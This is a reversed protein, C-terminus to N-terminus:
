FSWNIGTTIYVGSSLDLDVERTGGDFQADGLFRYQVGLYLDLPVEFEEGHLYLVASAYGGYVTDDNDFSDSDAKRGGIRDKYELDGSVIGLAFGGSVDLALRPHLDWHVVPGLWFNYLNADLTLTERVTGMTPVPAPLATATDHITPGLGSPGGNYPAGPVIIGATDFQHVTQLLNAGLKQSGSIEVPLLGFGLEFGFAFKERELLYHSYNIEFGLHPDDEASRTASDADYAITNHFSLQNGQYQSADTYGWYSTYREANMTDDVRVYGDEYFHNVGPVGTPGGPNGTTLGSGGFTFDADLNFGLMAGVRLRNAWDGHAAAPDAGRAAPELWPGLLLGGLIWGPTALIPFRHSM